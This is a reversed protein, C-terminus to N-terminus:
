RGFGASRIDVVKGDEFTVLYLFGGPGFNYTWEEVIVTSRVREETNRGRSRVTVERMRERSEKAAPEGCRSLVEFKLDGGSVVEGNCRMTDAAAIGAGALVALVLALALRKRM